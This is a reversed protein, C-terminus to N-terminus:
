DEGNDVTLRDRGNQKSYYMAKDARDILNPLNKTTDPYCAIGMSAKVYITTGNHTIPTVKIHERIREMIIIADDLSLDEFLVVFEEGGYRFTLGDNASAVQKITNSVTIIAQDGFLHGYTDNISKFHDIDILAAVATKSVKEYSFHESFYLNLYRRNYLGSLGDRNSMEMIKNYMFINNAAVEIQRLINDYVTEKDKFANISHSMIVFVSAFNESQVKISKVIISRVEMEELFPFEDFSVDNNIYIKGSLVQEDIFADSLFFSIFENFDLPSMKKELQCAHNKRMTKDRFIINAFFVDGHGAIIADSCKYIVENLDLSSSAIRIIRNQFNIDANILTIRKNAEEIEYKKVSLQENAYMLSSQNDSVKDFSDKARELMRDKAYLCQENYKQVEGIYSFIAFLVIFSVSAIIIYDFAKLIDPETRIICTLIKILYSSHLLLSGIFAFTKETLDIIYGIEICFLIFFLIAFLNMFEGTGISDGANILLGSVLVEICRVAMLVKYNHFFNFQSILVDVLAIACLAAGPIYVYIGGGINSIVNIIIFIFAAVMIPIHKRSFSIQLEIVKEKKDM